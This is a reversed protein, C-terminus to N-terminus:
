GGLIVDLVLKTGLFALMLTFFGALSWRIAVKGRWGFRWRGWLLVGFIGWAVITLITKHAVKQAFMDDLFMVGSVVTLSLLFFGLGIIQFLLNEMTQLPPLARLLGGPHKHRLKFDQFALLLAQVAAITLVSYTLIAISVHAELGFGADKPLLHVSKFSVSLVLSLAAVPFVMLGLNDVPKALSALLLLAVMLWAVLSMSNFFGLNLGDATVVVRYLIATHIVFGVLAMVRSLNPRAVTPPGHTALHRGLAVTAAIYFLVGIVGAFSTWM